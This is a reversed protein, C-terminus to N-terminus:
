DYVVNILDLVASLYKTVSKYYRYTNYVSSYTAYALAVHRYQVLLIPYLYVVLVIIPVGHIVLSGNIWIFRLASLTSRILVFSVPPRKKPREIVIFDHEM